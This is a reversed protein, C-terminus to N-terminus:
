ELAQYYKQNGSTIRHITTDAKPFNSNVIASFEIQLHRLDYDGSGGVMGASCQAHTQGIEMKSFRFPDSKETQAHM